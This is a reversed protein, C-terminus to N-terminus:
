EGARLEELRPGVEAAEASDPYRKLLREYCEIAREFIGEQDYLAGATRQYYAAQEHDPYTDVLQVYLAAAGTYEAKEYRLYAAQTMAEPALESDPHGTYLRRLTMAARSGNGSEGHCIAANYMAKPALDSDPADTAVADFLPAATGPDGAEWVAMAQNFSATARSARLVDALSPHASLLRSEGLLQEVVELARDWDEAELHIEAALAACASAEPSAPLRLAAAVLGATADDAQGRDALVRGAALAYQIGDSHRPYSRAFLDALQILGDEFAATDDGGRELGKKIEDAALRGARAGLERGAQDDVVELFTALADQGRGQEHYVSALALRMQPAKAAGEYHKLYTEYLREVGPGPVGHVPGEDLARQHIRGIADRVAEEIRVGLLRTEDNSPQAQMFDSDPGHDLMLGAASSSVALWDDREYASDLRGLRWLPADSHDPWANLLAAFHEDAEQHLGEAMLASAVEFVVGAADGGTGRCAAEVTTEADGLEAAMAVLDGRATTRQGADLGDPEALLIALVDIGGAVDGTKQHCWALRYRPQAAEVGTLADAAGRYHIMAVDYEGAAYAKEALSYRALPVEPEDPYEDLFRTLFDAGASPRNLALSAKGAVFLARPRDRHVPDASIEEAVEVARTLCGRSWDDRAVPNTLRSDSPFCREVLGEMLMGLLEARKAPDQTRGLDRELADIDTQTVDSAAAPAAALALIALALVLDRTSPM